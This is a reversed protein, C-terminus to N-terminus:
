SNKRRGRFKVANRLAGGKFEDLCDLAKKSYRKIDRPRKPDYVEAWSNKKGLILDRILVASIISYTMGTGSFASAVYEGPRYEGILALGDSPELIPGTWKRVIKYKLKGEFITKLFDEVAKFNKAPSMPLEIRHDAGGVLMRARRSDIYDVRFYNYPNYGDEYIGEKLADRPIELEMVYTKYMGKKAFVNKPSNFPQYTCVVIKEAAIKFGDKTEAVFKGKIKEIPTKEFILAGRAEAKEALGFLFKAPHYQGQRKAEFFGFHKFPLGKTKFSLNDFGIKKSHEVEDKIDQAQDEDGAFVYESVRKFECEIKEDKSIEEILDIAKAHSEWALKAKKKGFLDILDSLGTDLVHTLFATTLQTVGSGIENAECLVVKKGSLTLMYATAVGALGGGIVLIETEINEKLKPFKPKKIETWSTKM